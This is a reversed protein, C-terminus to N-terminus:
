HGFVLVLAFLGLVPSVALADVGEFIAGDVTAIEVLAIKVSLTADGIGITAADFPKPLVSHEDVLLVVKSISELVGILIPVVTLIVVAPKILLSQCVDHRQVFSEQPVAILFQPIDPGPSVTHYASM